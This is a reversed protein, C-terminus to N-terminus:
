QIEASENTLNDPQIVTVGVQREGTAIRDSEDIGKRADKAWGREIFELAMRKPIYMVDEREMNILMKYTIEGKDNRELYKARIPELAEVRFLERAM